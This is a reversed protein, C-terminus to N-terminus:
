TRDKATMRAAMQLARQANDVAKATMPPWTDSPPIDLAASIGGPAVFIVHEATIVLRTILIRSRQPGCRFPYRKPLTVDPDYTVELRHHDTLDVIVVEPKVTDLALIM